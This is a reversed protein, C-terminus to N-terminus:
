NRILMGQNNEPITCEASFKHLYSFPEAEFPNFRKRAKSFTCVFLASPPIALGRPHQRM